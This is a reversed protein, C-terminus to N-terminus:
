ETRAEERSLVTRLFADYILLAHRMAEEYTCGVALAIGKLLWADQFPIDLRVAAEGGFAMKCANMDLHQLAWWAAEDETLPRVDGRQDKLVFGEAMRYLAGSPASGLLEVTGKAPMIDHHVM